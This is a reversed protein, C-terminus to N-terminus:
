LSGTIRYHYIQGPELAEIWVKHIFADDGHTTQHLLREPHSDVSMTPQGSKGYTVASAEETDTEWMLAARTQHIRLLCPGKTIAALSRAPPAAVSLFSVLLLLSLSTELRSHSNDRELLSM